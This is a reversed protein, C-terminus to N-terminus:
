SVERGPVAFIVTTGQGPQSIVKLRGGVLRLRERMGVLGMGKPGDWAHASDFGVGDDVVVLEVEGQATGSLTVSVHKANAHKVINCLSEQLVRFLTTKTDDQITRPVEQEFFVMEFRAKNSFDKILHQVSVALSTDELNRPFLEHSLDRIDNLIGSLKGSMATLRPALGSANRESARTLMNAELILATVRQCYDDHLQRAIRKREDEQATFLRRTLGQLEARNDELEMHQRRLTEKAKKRGTIDMFALHMREGSGEGRKVPSAQIVAFFTADDMRKMEFEATDTEQRSVVRRCFLILRNVDQDSFFAFFSRTSHPHSRLDLKLLTRGARNMHYIRGERDVTVSGVPISEYLERYAAESEELRSQALFLEHCQMELEIHHVQLEYALAAASEQNLIPASREIVQILRQEAQRCLEPLQAQVRSDAM